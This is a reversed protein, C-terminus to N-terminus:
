NIVVIPTILPITYWTFYIFPACNTKIVTFSQIQTDRILMLYELVQKFYHATIGEDPCLLAEEQNSTQRTTQTKEEQKWPNYESMKVLTISFELVNNKYIKNQKTKTTRFVIWTRIYLSTHKFLSQKKKRSHLNTSGLTILIGFSTM